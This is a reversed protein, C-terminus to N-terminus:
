KRIEWEERIRRALEKIQADDGGILVLGKPGATSPATRVDCAGSAYDFFCAGDGGNLVGKARYLFSQANLVLAKIKELDVVADTMAAYSTFHRDRCEACTGHVEAMGGFPSLLELDADAYKVRQILISPKIELLKTEVDLLVAEDHLDIKNILAIHSAEIQDRLAPLTELLKHFSGPDVVSVVSALSFQRDLRTERLLDGIVKPNAMGSAEIIAGEVPSEPSHLENAIGGLTAIFETV